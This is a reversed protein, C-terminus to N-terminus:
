RVKRKRFAPNDGDLDSDPLVVPPEIMNLRINANRANANSPVMNPVSWRSNRCQGAAMRLPLFM